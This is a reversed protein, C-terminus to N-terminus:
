ESSVEEPKEKQEEPLPIERVELHAQDKLEQLYAQYVEEQKVRRLQQELRDRVQEFPRTEKKREIVKLIHYGYQTEFIDSIEGVPVSFAMDEFPKVMRGRPFDKYLGGADRSGPDESYKRALEAFDEGSRARKLIEQMKRYIQQKEAESKGETSLLIHRVTALRDEQYAKQLDEETIKVRERYIERLHERILLGVHIQQKVYDFDIGRDALFKRYKQEGGYREYRITLLSDLQNQELQMGSEIAARLLLKKDTLNNAIILLKDRLQRPSYNRLRNARYGEDKVATAIIDNTTITFYDTKVVVPNQDPDLAPLHLSLDEALKYAMTGKQLPLHSRIYEKLPDNPLMPNDNDSCSVTILTLIAVAHWVWKM